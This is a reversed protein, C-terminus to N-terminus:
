FANFSLETRPTSQNLYPWSMSWHRYSPTLFYQFSSLYSIFLASWLWSVTWQHTIRVDAIFRWNGCCAITRKIKQTVTLVKLIIRAEHFWNRESNHAVFHNYWGCKLMEYFIWFIRAEYLMSYIVFLANTQCSFCMPCGNQPSIRITELSKSFGRFVLWFLKLDL